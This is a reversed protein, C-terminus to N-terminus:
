REAAEDDAVIEIERDIGVGFTGFPEGLREAPRERCRRLGAGVGDDDRVRGVQAFGHADPRLRFTGGVNEPREGASSELQDRSYQGVIPDASCLPFLTFCERSASDEGAGGRALMAASNSCRESRWRKRTSGSSPMTRRAASVAANM